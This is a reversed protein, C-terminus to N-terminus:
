QGMERVYALLLSNIFFAFVLVKSQQASMGLAQGVVVRQAQAIVM